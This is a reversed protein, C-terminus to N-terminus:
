RFINFKLGYGWQDIKGQGTELRSAPPCWTDCSPLVSMRLAQMGPQLGQVSFSAPWLTNGHKHKNQKEKGLPHSLPFSHTHHNHHPNTSQRAVPPWSQLRSSTCCASPSSASRNAKHSLPDVSHFRRAHAPPLKREVWLMAPVPAPIVHGPDPLGQSPRTVLNLPCTCCGCPPLSTIYLSTSM